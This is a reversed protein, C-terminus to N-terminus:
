DCVVLAFPSAGPSDFLTPAPVIPGPRPSPPARAADVRAICEEMRHRLKAHKRLAVATKDQMGRHQHSPLFFSPYPTSLSSPPFPPPLLFSVLHSPSFHLCHLVRTIARTYRMFLQMARREAVRQQREEECRAAATLAALDRKAASPHPALEGLMVSPLCSTM